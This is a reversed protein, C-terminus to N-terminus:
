LITKKDMTYNEYNVGVLKNIESERKQSSTKIQLYIDNLKNTNYDVIPKVKKMWEIKEDDSKSVLKFIEAFILDIRKQMNTELDYREDIFPEFTKFGVRKLEKLTGVSGFILILSLVEVEHLLLSFILIHPINLHIHFLILGCYFYSHDM